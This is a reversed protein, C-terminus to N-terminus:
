NTRLKARALTSEINSNSAPQNISKEVLIKILQNLSNSFNKKDKIELFGLDLNINSNIVINTVILFNSVRRSSSPQKAPEITAGVISSRDETAEKFILDTLIISVITHKRCNTQSNEGAQSATVSVRSRPNMQGKTTM